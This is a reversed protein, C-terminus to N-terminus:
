RALWPGLVERWPGLESGDVLRGSRALERWLGIVAHRMAVPEGEALVVAALMANRIDGGTLPFQGALWDLELDPATRAPCCRRWLERREDPGPLAFEAIIQMRRVFAPDLSARLNTALVAVGRFSELRQLLYGTEINAFRDHADRAETRRGFLAEAEDFLLVVHNSEAHDFVRALHKETEGIYKDVIRALDIRVLDLGLAAALAQAASSKGTGPPGWFLCALGGSAALHVGGAAPLDDLRRGWAVALDLERRTQATVVLDALTLRPEVVDVGAGTVERCADRRAAALHDGLTGGDATARERARRAAATIRGPAMRRTAIADLGPLDDGCADRWLALREARGLPEVALEFVPLGAAAIAGVETVDADPRAIVIALGADRIVPAAPVLGPEAIVPVAGLWRAERAVLAAAAPADVLIARRDLAAAVTRAIATRGTGADGRVVVLGRGERRAWAAAREVAARTAATAVVAALPLAAPQEFVAGADADILRRWV